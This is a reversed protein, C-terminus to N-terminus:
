FHYDSVGNLSANQVLWYIILKTISIMSDYKSIRSFNVVVTFAKKTTPVSTILMLHRGTEM